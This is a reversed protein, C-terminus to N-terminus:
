SQKQEGQLRFIVTWPRAGDFTAGDAVDNEPDHLVASVTFVECGAAEFWAVVEAPNAEKAGPWLYLHAEYVGSCGNVRDIAACEGLSKGTPCHGSNMRENISELVATTTNM